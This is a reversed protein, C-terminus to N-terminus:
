FNKKLANGNTILCLMEFYLEEFSHFLRPLDLGSSRFTHADCDIKLFESLVSEDTLHKIKKGM